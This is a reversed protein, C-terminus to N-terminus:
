LFTQPIGGEKELFLRPSTYVRKHGSSLFEGLPLRNKRFIQILLAMGMILGFIISTILDFKIYFNKEEQNAVKPRQGL